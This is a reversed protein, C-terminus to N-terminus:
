NLTKLEKGKFCWWLSENGPEYCVFRSKSVCSFFWSSASVWRTPLKSRSLTADFSDSLTIASSLLDGTNTSTSSFSNIKSQENARRESESNRWRRREFLWSSTTSSLIVFMLQKESVSSFKEGVRMPLNCYSRIVYVCCCIMILQVACLFIIVFESM